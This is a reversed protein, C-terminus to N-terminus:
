PVRPALEGPRLGAASARRAKAGDAAAPRTLMFVPIQRATGGVHGENARFEEIIKTNYDSAEDPAPNTM